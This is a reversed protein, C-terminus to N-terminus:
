FWIFGYSVMYSWDQNLITKYNIQFFPIFLHFYTSKMALSLFPLPNEVGQAKTITSATPFFQLRGGVRRILSFTPLSFFLSPLNARSGCLRPM